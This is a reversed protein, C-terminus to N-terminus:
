HISGTSGLRHRAVCGQIVSYLHEQDVPYTLFADGGVQTAHMRSAENASSATHFVVAINRTGPNKRLLECVEYGSLDPLNIDLLVVDPKEATAVELAANGCNAVRVVFGSRELVKSMAYCHIENDDVTLVSIMDKM